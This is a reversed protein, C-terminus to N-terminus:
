TSVPEDVPPGAALYVAALELEDPPSALLAGAATVGVRRPPRSWARREDGQPHPECSWAWAGDPARKNTRELRTWVIVVHLTNCPFVPDDARARISITDCPELVRLQPRTGDGRPTGYAQRIALGEGSVIRWVWNADIKNAVNRVGQPADALAIEGLHTGRPLDDLDEPALEWGTADM